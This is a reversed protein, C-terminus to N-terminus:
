AHNVRGPDLLQLSRAPDEGDQDTGCGLIVFGNLVGKAFSPISSILLLPKLLVERCLPNM